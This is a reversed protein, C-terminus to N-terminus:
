QCQRKATCVQADVFGAFAHPELNEFHLLRAAALGALKERLREDTLEGDMIINVGAMYRKPQAENPWYLYVTERDWVLHRPVSPHSLFTHERYRIYRSSDLVQM